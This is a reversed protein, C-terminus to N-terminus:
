PVATDRPDFVVVARTGCPQPELSGLLQEHRNRCCATGPQPASKSTAEPDKSSQRRIPSVALASFL